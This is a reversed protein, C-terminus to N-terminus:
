VISYILIYGIIIAFVIEILIRVNEKRKQIRRARLQMYVDDQNQRKAEDVLESM